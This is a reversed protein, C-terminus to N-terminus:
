SRSRSFMKSWFMNTGGFLVVLPGPDDGFPRRCRLSELKFVTEHGFGLSSVTLGLGLLIDVTALESAPATAGSVSTFKSFFIRTLLKITWDIFAPFPRYISQMASLSIVLFFTLNWCTGQALLCWRPDLSKVDVAILSCEMKPWQHRHSRLTSSLSQCFFFICNPVPPRVRSGHSWEILLMAIAWRADHIYIPNEIPAHM